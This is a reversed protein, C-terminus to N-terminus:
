SKSGYHQIKAFTAITQNSGEDSHESIHGKFIRFENQLLIENRAISPKHDPHDDAEGRFYLGNPYVEQYRELIRKYQEVSQIETDAKM